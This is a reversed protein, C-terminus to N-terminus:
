RARRKIHRQFLGGVAIVLALVAAAVAIWHSHGGESAIHGRHASAVSVTAATVFTAIILRTM